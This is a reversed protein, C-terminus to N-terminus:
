IETTATEPQSLYRKEVWDVVSYYTNVQKAISNKPLKGEKLLALITEAKSGEKPATKADKSVKKTSAKVAKASAVSQKREAKKVEKDASKSKDKQARLKVSVSDEDREKLAAKIAKEEKPSLQEEPEAEFVTPKKASMSPKSNEWQSIDQGRKKLIEICAQKTDGTIGRELQAIVQATGM